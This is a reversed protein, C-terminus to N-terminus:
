NRKIGCRESAVGFLEMKSWNNGMCKRFAGLQEMAREKLEM